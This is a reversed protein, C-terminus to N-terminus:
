MLKGTDSLEAFFNKNLSCEELEKKTLNDTGKKWVSVKNGYNSSCMKFMVGDVTAGLFSFSHLFLLNLM